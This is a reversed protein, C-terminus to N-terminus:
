QVEVVTVEYRAYDKDVSEIVRIPRVENPLMPADSGYIALVEETLIPQDQTNYFTVQLKLQRIPADSTNTIAWEADFFASDTIDYVGLNENRSTLDFTLQAPPQSDWTYKIPTPQDYAAAPAQDINTVSLRISTLEPTTKHIIDFAHHDGPRVTADNEALVEKIDTAIASGEQDLYEVQLSLAKIAQDSTNQLVGQLTYYSSDQYNDLRSQRFDVTLGAQEFTIPITAALDSADDTADAPEPLANLEIEQTVDETLQKVESQTSLFGAIPIAAGAVIILLLGIWMFRQRGDVEHELSSILIVADEDSPSLERCRKAAAIAQKKDTENKQKGYRQDYAYALHQFGEFSLPDLTTAQTLEDIAEDLADFDLYNRGLELHDHAKQQVAALDDPGLGIEQALATLTDATTPKEQNLRQIYTDIISDQEM